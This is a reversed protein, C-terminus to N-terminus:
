RGYTMTLRVTAPASGVQTRVQDFTPEARLAASNAMAWGDLPIHSDNKDFRGNGNDDHWVSIAYDGAPIEYSFRHAGAQPRSVISGATERQQMFEERTQVTVYLNGGAARVGDLDVNLDAAQAPAAISLAGLAVLTLRNM